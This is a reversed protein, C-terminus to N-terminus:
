TSYIFILLIIDQSTLPILIFLPFMKWTSSLISLHSCVPLLQFSTLSHNHAQPWIARHHANRSGKYTTQHGAWLLCEVFIKQILSPLYNDQPARVTTAAGTLCGPVGGARKVRFQPAWYELQRQSQLVNETKRELINGRIACTNPFYVCVKM